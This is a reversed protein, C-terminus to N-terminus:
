CCNTLYHESNKILATPSSSQSQEYNSFLCVGRSEKEPSVGKQCLLNNFSILLLNSMTYWFVVETIISLIVHEFWLNLLITSLVGLLCVFEALVKLSLIPMVSQDPAVSSYPVKTGQLFQLKHNIINPLIYWLAILSILGGGAVNGVTRM